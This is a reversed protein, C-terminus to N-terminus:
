GAFGGADLFAQEEPTTARGLMANRHPFRGFRRIIGAHQEAYKLFEADGYRRALDVCREQDALDESHMFPLYLFRRDDHPVEADFGRAIARGAVARALADAEYTRAHGRFMNRPFQDLVITLALAGDPTAEWKALAGAAAAHWVVFFRVAIESDLAPDKEFWKDPGVARWFALVDRPGIAAATGLGKDTGLGEDASV